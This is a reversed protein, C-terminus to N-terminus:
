VGLKQVIHIAALILLFAGLVYEALEPWTRGDANRVMLYFGVLLAVTTGFVTIM